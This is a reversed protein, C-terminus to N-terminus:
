FCYGANFTLPVKVGANSPFINGNSYHGIRIEANLKKNKGAFLGMGMFDYFTFHRGTNENDIMVRSIYTPGAVAYNFYIDASRTRIPTFRMMPFLSFTFFDQKLERSRWWSAGAGWDLSFVKRSRFINRHYQITLGQSVVADGGWFIPLGDDSFFKNAGYGLVNTSYGVQLLNLPFHYGAKANREVKEKSLARLHYNFGGSFFITYPQDHKENAPSWVGGLLLDWKKNIHYQLGGGLLVSGYTADKVVPANNIEFGNRTVLAFGGEGYLSIKKAVPAQGKVTLAGINMWVSHKKQDGNVDRYEVWNVPRMYSIQAAVHKNFQHGILLMKVAVPPIKVAAATYGPQLNANTFPYHIYGVNVGFYANRLFGPYQYRKDQAHATRVGWLLGGWLLLLFMKNM